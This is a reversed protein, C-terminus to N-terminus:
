FENIRVKNDSMECLDDCIDKNRDLISQIEPNYRAVHKLWKWKHWDLCIINDKLIAPEILTTDPFLNKRFHGIINYKYEPPYIKWRWKEDLVMGTWAQENPHTNFMGWPECKRTLDVWRENIIDLLEKRVCILGTGFLPLGKENNERFTIKQTPVDISMRNYMMRWLRQETADSFIRRNEPELVLDLDEKLLEEYASLHKLFLFDAEIKIVWPKSTKIRFSNLMYKCRSELGGTYMDNMYYIKSKINDKIYQRVKDHKNRNTVVHLITDDPINNKLSDVMMYLQPNLYEMTDFSITLDFSM